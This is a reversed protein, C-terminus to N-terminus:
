NIEINININKIRRIKAEYKNRYHTQQLTQMVIKNNSYCFNRQEKRQNAIRDKMTSYIKNLFTKGFINLIMKLLM